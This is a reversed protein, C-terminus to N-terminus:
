NEVRKEPFNALKASLAEAVLKLHLIWVFSKTTVKAKGVLFCCHMKEDRNVTRM